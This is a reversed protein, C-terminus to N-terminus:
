HLFPQFHCGRLSSSPFPLVSGVSHIVPSVPSVTRLDPDSYSPMEEVVVIIKLNTSSIYGFMCLDAPLSVQTLGLQPLQDGIPRNNTDENTVQPPLGNWSAPGLVSSQGLAPGLYGLYPDAAAVPAAQRSADAVQSEQQSM